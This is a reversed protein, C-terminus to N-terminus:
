LYQAQGLAALGNLYKSNRSPVLNLDKILRSVYLRSSIDFKVELIRKNSRISNNDDIIRFMSPMSFDINSDVTIRAGTHDEFYKRSYKVLLTPEYYRFNSYNQLDTESFLLATIESLTLLHIKNELKHIRFVKKKGARDNKIKYEFQPVSYSKSSDGYWRLRAKARSSIGTLNDKVSDYNSTDFYLTNIKRDPYRNLFLSSSHLWSCFHSYNVENLVFKTEYRFM